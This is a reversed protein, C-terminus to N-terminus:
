WPPTKTSDGAKATGPPQWSVVPESMLKIVPRPAPREERVGLNEPLDLAPVTPLAHLERLLEDVEVSPVDISGEDALAVILAHNGDDRVPAAVGHAIVLGPALISADTLSLREDGRAGGMLRVELPGATELNPTFYENSGCLMTYTGEREFALSPGQLRPSPGTIEYIAYSGITSVFAIDHGEFAARHDVVSMDFYHRPSTDGDDDTPAPEDEGDDGDDGDDNASPRDELDIGEDGPGGPTDAPDCASALV